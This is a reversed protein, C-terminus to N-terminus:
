TGVEELPRQSLSEVREQFTAVTWGQPAENARAVVRIEVENGREEM